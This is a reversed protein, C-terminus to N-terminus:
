ALDRGVGHVEGPPYASRGHALGLVVGGPLVAALALLTIMGARWALDFFRPLFMSKSYVMVLTGLPVGDSVIGTIIYFKDQAPQNWQRRNLVATNSLQRICHFM